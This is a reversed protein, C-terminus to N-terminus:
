RTVGGGAQQAPPQELGRRLCFSEWTLVLHARRQVYCAGWGVRARSAASRRRAAALEGGKGEELGENARGAQATLESTCSLSVLWRSLSSLTWSQFCHSLFVAFRPLSPLISSCSAAGKEVWTTRVGRVRPVRTFVRCAAAPRPAPVAPVSLPPRKGCRVRGHLSVPRRRQTTSQHADSLSTVWEDHNM